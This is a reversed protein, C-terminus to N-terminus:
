GGDGDRGHQRPLRCRVVPDGDDDELTCRGGVGETRERVGLLGARGLLGAGADAPGPDGRLTLDIRGDAADVRIDLHNARGGERVDWLVEQVIGFVARSETESTDGEVVVEVDLDPVVTLALQALTDGLGNGAGARPHLEVLVDRLQVVTDRVTQVAEPLWAPASQDVMGLLELRMAAVTLMQIPRDHLDGALEARERESAQVLSHLLDRRRSETAVLTRTVAMQDTIDRMTGHLRIARGDEFDVVTAQHVYRVAGDPWVVRHELAFSGTGQLADAFAQVLRARDDPHVADFFLEYDPAVTEPIGLIQHVRESWHLEDTDVDADWSGLDAIRQVTALMTRADALAAEDDQDRMATITVRLPPPLVRQAGPETTTASRGTPM